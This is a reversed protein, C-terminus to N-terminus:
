KVSPYKVGDNEIIIVWQVIVRQDTSMDQGTIPDIMKDDEPEAKDTKKTSGKKTTKVAVRPETGGLSIKQTM